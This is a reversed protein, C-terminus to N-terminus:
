ADHDQEGPKITQAQLKRLYGASLAFVAIAFIATFFTVGLENLGLADLLNGCLMTALISIMLLGMALAPIDYQALRYYLLLGIAIVTAVCAYAWALLGADFPHAYVDFLIPFIAMLVAAVLIWRTWLQALWKGGEARGVLFERSILAAGNIAAHLLLQLKEPAHGHSQTQEWWLSFGLNVLLLWLAWLAASRSALTWPTILLAWVAFLTWADAGSQYVQGFVAMFVGVLIAAAILLLQGLIHRVGFAWAGVAALVLGTQILGLKFLDSMMAWNFAFFFVVGTLVLGTGFCLLLLMTWRAWQHPPHLWNLSAQWQEADIVKRVVLGDLLHRDVTLQKLTRNHGAQGQCNDQM